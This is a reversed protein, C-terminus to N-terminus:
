NRKKRRQKVEMLYFMLSYIIRCKVKSKPERKEEEERLRMLRAEEELALQMDREEQERRQKEEAILREREAALAQEQKRKLKQKDIEKQNATLKIMQSKAEARQDQSEFKDLFSNFQKKDVKIDDKIFSRRKSEDENTTGM